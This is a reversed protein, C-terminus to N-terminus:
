RMNVLKSYYGNCNSQMVEWISKRRVWVPHDSGEQPKWGGRPNRDSVEQGDAMLLWGHILQEDAPTLWAANVSVHGMTHPDGSVRREVCKPFMECLAYIVGQEFGSNGNPYSRTYCENLLDVMLKHKRVRAKNHLNHKSVTVTVAM